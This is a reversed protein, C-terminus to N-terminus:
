AIVFCATALSVHMNAAEGMPSTRFHRVYAAQVTANHLEAQRIDMAWSITCRVSSAIGLPNGYGHAFHLQWLHLAGCLRLSHQLRCNRGYQCSGTFLWRECHSLLSCPWICDELCQQESSFAGGRRHSMGARSQCGEMQLPVRILGTLHYAGLDAGLNSRCLHTHLRLLVSLVSLFLVLLAVWWATPTV